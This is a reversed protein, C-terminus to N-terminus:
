QPKDKSDADRCSTDPDGNNDSPSGKAEDKSEWVFTITGEVKGGHEETWSGTIKGETRDPRSMMPKFPIRPNPNCTLDKFERGIADYGILEKRNNEYSFFSELTDLAYIDM